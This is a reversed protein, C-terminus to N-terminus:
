AACLVKNKRLKEAFANAFDLIKAGKENRKVAVNNDYRCQIIEGNAYELAVFPATPNSLERIFFVLTKNEAIRDPYTRLCNHLLSGERILEYSNEPVYVLLGNKGNMYSKLDKMERLAKSIKAIMVDQKKYNKGSMEMSIKIDMDRFDKPYRYQNDIPYKLRRLNDIYHLYESLQVGNQKSIYRLTKQTKLESDDVLRTYEYTTCKAQGMLDYLQESENPYELMLKYLNKNDYKTLVRLQAKNIGLIKTLSNEKRSYKFRERWNCFLEFAMNKLGVKYMKEYLPVDLLKQMSSSILCYENLYEDLPEFYRLADIKLIEKKFGVKVPDARLCWSNRVQWMFCEIFYYRDDVKFENGNVSFEYSFGRKFDFVKRACEAISFEYKGQRIVSYYRFMLVDKNIAKPIVYWDYQFACGNSKRWMHEVTLETRCKPCKIKSKHVTKEFEVNRGCKECYGHKNDHNDFRIYRASHKIMWKKQIKTAPNLNDRGYLNNLEEKRKASRAM